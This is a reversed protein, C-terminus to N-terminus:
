EEKFREPDKLRLVNTEGVVIIEDLTLTIRYPAIIDFKKKVIPETGSINVLYLRYQSANTKENFASGVMFIRHDDLTGIQEALGEFGKPKAVFVYEGKLDLRRIVGDHSMTVVGNTLCLPSVVMRGITKTFLEEIKGNKYREMHIQTNTGEGSRFCFLGNALWSYEGAAVFDDASCPINAALILFTALLLVMGLWSSVYRIFLDTFSSQSKLPNLNNTLTPENRM